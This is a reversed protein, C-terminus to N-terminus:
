EQSPVKRDDSKTINKVDAYIAKELQDQMKKYGESIQRVDPRIKDALANHGAIYGSRYSSSDNCFYCLFYLFCKISSYLCIGLVLTPLDIIFQTTM